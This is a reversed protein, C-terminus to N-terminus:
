SKSSSSRKVDRIDLSEPINEGDQTLFLRILLESAQNIITLYLEHFEESGEECQEFEDFLQNIEKWLFVFIPIGGTHNVSFNIPIEDDDDDDIFVSIVKDLYLNETEEEQNQNQKSINILNLTSLMKIKKLFESPGLDDSIPVIFKYFDDQNQCSVFFNGNSLVLKFLDALFICGNFAKFHNGNSSELEVDTLEIDDVFYIMQKIGAAKAISEPFLLVRLMWEMYKEDNNWLTTMQNAISQFSSAVYQFDPNLKFAPPVFPPQRTFSDPDIENSDDTISKFFSTLSHIYPTYCPCNWQLSRMTIDVVDHFFLEPNHVHMICKSLDFNVIFYKKISETAVLEFLLEHALFSLFTSKGSQRPGVIAHNFHYCAGSYFTIKDNQETNKNTRSKKSKFDIETSEFFPIRHTSFIQRIVSIIEDYGYIESRQIDDNDFLELGKKIWFFDLDKSNDVLQTYFDIPVEKQNDEKWENPDNYISYLSEPVKQALTEEHLVHLFIESLNSTIKTLKMREEETANSWASTNRKLKLNKKSSQQDSEQNQANKKKSKSSFSESSSKYKLDNKNADSESTESSVYDESVGDISRKKFLSKKNSNSSQFQNQLNADDNENNKNLNENYKKFKPIQSRDRTQSSLSLHPNGIVTVKVREEESGPGAFLKNYSGQQQIVNDQDKKQPKNRKKVKIEDEGDGNELAPSVYITDGPIVDDIYKIRKGNKTFLSQVDVIDSFLNKALRMLSQFSPPYKIKKPPLSPDDKFTLYIFANFVTGNSNQGQEDKQHTYYKRM